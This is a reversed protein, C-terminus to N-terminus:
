TFIPAVVMASSRLALSIPMVKAMASTVACSPLPHDDDMGVNFRPEGMVSSMLQTGPLAECWAKSVAACFRVDVANVTTNGVVPLGVQLKEAKTPVNVM